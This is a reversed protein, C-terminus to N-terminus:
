EELYQSAYDTEAWNLRQVEPRGLPSNEFFSEMLNDLFPLRCLMAWVAGGVGLVLLFMGVVVMAAFM